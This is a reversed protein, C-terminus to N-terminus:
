LLRRVVIKRKCERCSWLGLPLPIERIEGFVNQWLCEHGDRFVDEVGILTGCLTDVLVLTPPLPEKSPIPKFTVGVSASANACVQVMCNDCWDYHGSWMPPPFSSTVVGCTDKLIRHCGMWVRVRIIEGQNASVIVMGATDPLVIMASSDCSQCTDPYCPLLTTPFMTPSIVSPIFEASDTACIPQAVNDSRSLFVLFCTLVSLLIKKM